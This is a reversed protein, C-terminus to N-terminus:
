LGFTAHLFEFPFGTVRCLGTLVAGMGTGLVGGFVGLWALAIVVIMMYREYRLYFGYLRDPLFVGLVKSGDLPPIPILNFLGLGVNLVAAYCLFVLAYTAAMGSANRILISAAALAATAMIFNSAPGALATLAMGLKPRRFGRPDVPVPKAWGVHAVVLLVLGVPDVHALPNLTLRGARKATDDGLALAALGHSLEHGAICLVSAAASILLYVLRQANFSALFNTITQM